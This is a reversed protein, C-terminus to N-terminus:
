ASAIPSIELQQVHPISGSHWTVASLDSQVVGTSDVPCTSKTQWRWKAQLLSAISSPKSQGLGLKTCSLRTRELRDKTSETGYPCRGGRIVGEQTAGRRVFESVSLLGTGSRIRKVHWRVSERASAQDSTVSKLVLALALSAGTRLYWYILKARCVACSRLNSPSL